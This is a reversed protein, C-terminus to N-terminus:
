YASFGFLLRIILRAGWALCPLSAVPSAYSVTNGPSSVIWGIQSKESFFVVHFVHLSPPRTKFRKVTSYWYEMVKPRIKCSLTQCGQSARTNTCMSSSDTRGLNSKCGLPQFDSTPVFSSSSSSETTCKRSRRRLPLWQNGAWFFVSTCFIFFFHGHAMQIRGKCLNGLCPVFWVTWFLIEGRKKPIGFNLHLFFIPPQKSDPCLPFLCKKLLEKLIWTFPLFLPSLFKKVRKLFNHRNLCSTGFFSPAKIAPGLFDSHFSPRLPM